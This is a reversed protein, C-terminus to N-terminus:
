SVSACARAPTAQTRWKGNTRIQETVCIEGASRLSVPPEFGPFDGGETREDALTDHCGDGTTITQGAADKCFVQIPPTGHQTVGPYSRGGATLALRWTKGALPSDSESLYAIVDRVQLHDNYVNLCIAGEPQPNCPLGLPNSNGCAALTLGLAIGALAIAVRSM